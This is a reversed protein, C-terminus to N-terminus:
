GARLAAELRDELEQQQRDDLDYGIGMGPQQGAPLEAQDGSSWTVEGEIFIPALLGPALVEIRVRRGVPLPKLTAVFGSGQRLNEQYEKVMSATKKYALKLKAPKRRKTPAPVAEMEMPPPPPSADPSPADDGMDLDSFIDDLGLGAGAEGGAGVGFPDDDLGEGLDPLDVLEEDVDEFGIGLDDLADVGGGAMGFRAPGSAAEDGDTDPDDVDEDFAQEDLPEVPPMAMLDPTPELAPEDLALDDLALDDLALDDLAVEDLAVEDLAVDELELEDMPLEDVPLEDVPLEVPAAKSRGKKFLGALRRKPAKKPQKEEQLASAEAAGGQMRLPLDTDGFLDLSQGGVGKAVDAYNRVVIQRAQGSGQERAACHLMGNNDIRFTVEVKTEMRPAPTLGMLVFEGLFENEKSRRSEGQRVVVRVVEQHERTTAFTRTEATPIHSNRGIVAQFLGGVVDIGLDFPTVDLLLPGRNRRAPGGMDDILEAADIEELDDLALPEPASLSAAHVAAGMAVVEEPDVGGIPEKGFLDRVAERVRPMRTQGGVLILDDIDSLELGAEQVATRTIELTQAVLEDVLSELTLRTLPVELNESETVKPVLVTTRDQFSLECKAREAADKLRQLTPPHKRLDVGTMGEFNDALYDLLLYDFDEGGLFTDGKTALIEYVEGTIQMVSVDFTGGGLDYILITRDLDKGLGYALAAATPENILRDCSLGALKAAELTAARQQHTFYAPVTIVVEGIEEGGDTEALEKAVQLVLASLEAPSFVQEGLRVACNGDPAAHVDYGLRRRVESVREDDNRRGMLRKFAHATREPRTITLNRAAQGVLFKGDPKLSVASPLVKFGQADELVRPSGTDMVAVVTNTTGLDIGIAKAM